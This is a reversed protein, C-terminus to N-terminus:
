QKTDLRITWCVKKRNCAYKAGGMPGDKERTGPRLTQYRCQEVSYQHLDSPLEMEM